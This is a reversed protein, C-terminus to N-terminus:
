AMAAMVSAATEGTAAALMGTIAGLCYFGQCRGQLCRTRRRLGDLVTPDLQAHALLWGTLSTTTTKGHTGAVVLSERNGILFTGPAQPFSIYPIYTNLVHQAEPNGVSVANGVVVLDPPPCLHQADYGSLVEIGISKLYTSMPPYIHQDSGTVHYGKSQLLGALSAMGVGCIAIFHVHAGRPPLENM